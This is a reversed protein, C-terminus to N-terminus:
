KNKKANKSHQFQKGPLPKVPRRVERVWRTNYYVAAIMFVVTSLTTLNSEFVGMPELFHTAPWLIPNSGQQVALMWDEHRFFAHEGRQVLQLSYGIVTVLWAPWFWAFNHWPGGLVGLDRFILDEIFDGQLYM